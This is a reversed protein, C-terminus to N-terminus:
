VLDKLRKALLTHLLGLIVAGALILFFDRTTIEHMVVALATGAAPPHEFDLAVMIFFALAVVSPYEFYYPLPIYLFLVGCLLATLHGGVVNRFRASAAKPMAFVIFATAALSSIAVKKEGGIALIFIGLAFAAYLSQTIYYFWDKLFKVAFSQSSNILQRYQGDM